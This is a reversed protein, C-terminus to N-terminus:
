INAHMCQLSRSASSTVRELSFGGDVDCAVLTQVENSLNVVTDKCGWRRFVVDVVTADLYTGDSTLVEVQDGSSIDRRDCRACYVKGNRSYRIFAVRIMKPRKM